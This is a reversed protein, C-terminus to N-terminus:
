YISFFGVGDLKFLSEVLFTLAYSDLLYFYCFFFFVYCSSIFSVTDFLSLTDKWKGFFSVSTILEYLIDTLFLEDFSDLNSIIYNSDIGTRYRRLSVFPLKINKKFFRMSPSFYYIYSSSFNMYSLYYIISFVFAKKTFPMLASKSEVKYYLFSSNIKLDLFGLIFLKKKIILNSYKSRTLYLSESLQKLLRGKM